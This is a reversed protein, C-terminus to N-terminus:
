RKVRGRLSLLALEAFDADDLAVEAWRVLLDAGRHFQARPCSVARASAEIRIPQAFVTEEFDLAERVVVPGFDRAGEFTSRLFSVDGSAAVQFTVGEFSARGGFTV